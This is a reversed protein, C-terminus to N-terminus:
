HYKRTYKSLLFAAFLAMAFWILVWVLEPIFTLQALASGDGLSRGDLLYLPSQLSNLLVLLGTIQVMKQRYRQSSFKFQAIVLMLLVSVIIFTLLDRVWLVISFVLLCMLLVSFVQAVKRHISALSYIMSGWLIAGAYGMFSILFASGGRTTCLGAGNPFLQIQVISGGTILATLGHSIEHFYSELWKFPISVFPLQLVIIAALLLLWFQYKQSFSLPAQPSSKTTFSTPLEPL